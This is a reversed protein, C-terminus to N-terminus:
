IGAKKRLRAGVAAAEKLIAEEDVTLIKKNEMIVKGNIIMTDVNEEGASYVLAAVPENMPMTKATMPNFIFLDAKKGAEISGLHKEKGLAIAGNITAMKLVDYASVVSADRYFVKQLLAANKMTEIMDQSDNSAAGDSALCVTIGEKMFERIPAFGSALIMNSTPCYSVKVDHKKFIEIDGSQMYVSHVSIVDPGFFGIEDLFEITRKKNVDLSFADDDETEVIHMTVPLKYKDAFQRVAQFEERNLDWIIGPALCISIMDSQDAPYEHLLRETDALFNPVTDILECFNAKPLGAVNTFGRGMIGRVGVTDFAKIVADTLKPRTNAYMFDLVTTTGSHVSELCGVLAAYYCTEEDYFPLANRVSADLWEILPKDRGLGKLLTQFLHTHTNILGPFVVKGTADIIKDAAYLKEHDKGSGAALIRGDNIAIWGSEIDTGNNDVTIIRGNKILLEISLM